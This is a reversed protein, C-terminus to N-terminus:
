GLVTQGFSRLLETLRCVPLGMVNFYDGDLHSVFICARGQIGYAGAKDMPEGTRVYAEIEQQRLARFRIQTTVVESVCRAGQRVTLGTMVQHSRGSLMQLMQKAQAQTAPKGLIHGDAVVITDAAIIVASQAGTRHLVADAKARSIRAVEAEPACAPDMTEDIDAVEVTFPVGMLRLLEQRRPSKSALIVSM